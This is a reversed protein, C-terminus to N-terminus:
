LEYTSLGYSKIMIRQDRFKFISIINQYNRLTIAM